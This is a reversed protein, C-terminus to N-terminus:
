SHQKYFNPKFKKKKKKATGKHLKIQLRKEYEPMILKARLTM